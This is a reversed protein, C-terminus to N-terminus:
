IEGNGVAGCQTSFYVWRFAQFKNSPVGQFLCTVQWLCFLERPRRWSSFSEHLSYCFLSIHGKHFKNRSKSKGQELSCLLDNRHFVLFPCSSSIYFFFSIFSPFLCFCASFSNIEQSNNLSLSHWSLREVSICSAPGFTSHLCPLLGIGGQLCVFIPYQTSMFLSWWVLTGVMWASSYPFVSQKNLTKLRFFAFIETELSHTSASYKTLPLFM